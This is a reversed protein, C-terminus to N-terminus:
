APQARREIQQGCTCYTGYTGDDHLQEMLVTDDLARRCKPCKYSNDYGTAQRERNIKQKHMFHSIVYTNLDEPTYDPFAAFLMNMWFHLVDILERGIGHDNLMNRAASWPKWSTEDIVEVLEAQAAIYMEKLYAIREEKSMKEFDYGMSVQFERQAAIISTFDEAM